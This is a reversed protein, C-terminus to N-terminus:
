SPRWLMTGNVAARVNGSQDRNINLQTANLLWPLRHLDALYGAVDGFSGIIELNVTSQQWGSRGVPTPDGLQLRHTVRRAEAARELTVIVDLAQGSPAGAERLSEVAATALQDRQQAGGNREPAAWAELQGRREALEQRIGPLARWSPLGVLLWLAAGGVLAAAPASLLRVYSSM